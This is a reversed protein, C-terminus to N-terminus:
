PNKYAIIVRSNIKVFVISASRTLRLSSSALSPLQCCPTFMYFYNIEYFYQLTNNGCLILYCQLNNLPIATPQRSTVPEVTRLGFGSTSCSIKEEVSQELGARPEGVRKNFSSRRDKGPYLFLLTFNDALM